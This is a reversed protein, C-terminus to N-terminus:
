PAARPRPPRRAPRCRAVTRECLRPCRERHRRARLALREPHRRADLGLCLHRLPQPRRRAQRPRRPPEPEPPCGGREADDLRRAGVHRGDRHREQLHRALCCGGPAPRRAQGRQLLWRGLGADQLWRQVSGRADDGGSARDAGHVALTWRRPKREGLLADCSSAQHGDVRHRRCRWRPRTGAVDDRVRRPLTRDHSRCSALAGRRPVGPDRLAPPDESSGAAVDDVPRSQECGLGCFRANRQRRARAALAILASSLWANVASKTAPRPLVWRHRASGAEFWRVSSQRTGSWLVRLDSLILLRCLDVGRDADLVVAM